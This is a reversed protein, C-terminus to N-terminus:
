TPHNVGTFLALRSSSNAEFRERGATQETTGCGTSESSSSRSRAASTGSSSSSSSASSSKVSIVDQEGRGPPTKTGRLQLIGVMMAQVDATVESRAKHLRVLVDSLGHEAAGATALRDAADNGYKDEPKVIGSRVDRQTAHGKVKSIRFSCERTQLLAHVQQWLDANSVKHFRTNSWAFRRQNVGKVVYESDSKIHLARTERHLVQLVAALEARQNTQVHGELPRSINKEHDNCWWAGIGARRLSAHQNNECAGDTYVVVHGDILQEHDFLQGSYQSLEPRVPKKKTPAQASQGTSAGDLIVFDSM